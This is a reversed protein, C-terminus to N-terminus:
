KKNAKKFMFYLSAIFTIFYILTLLPQAVTLNKFDINKFFAVGVIIAIILLPFSLNKNKM